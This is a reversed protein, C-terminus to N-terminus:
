LWGNEVFKVDDDCFVYYKSNYENMFRNMETPHHFEKSEKNDYIVLNFSVDKTTKELSDHFCNFALGNKDPTCVLLNIDCNANNGM